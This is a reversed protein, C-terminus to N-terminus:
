QGTSERDTADDGLVMGALLRFCARNETPSAPDVGVAVVRGGQKSHFDYIPKPSRHPTYFIIAGEGSNLVGSNAFYGLMKYIEETPVGNRKRLKPDIYFISTVEGKEATAVKSIVTFDPRGGLMKGSQQWAAMEGVATKALDYQYHIAINLSDRKWQYTPVRGTNRMNPVTRPKGLAIAIEDAIGMLCWLEFLTADFAEDYFLWQEDGPQLIPRGSLTHRVWIALEEYPERNGVHGGALRQEVDDLMKFVWDDNGYHAVEKKNKSVGPLRLMLDLRELLQNAAHGERSNLPAKSSLLAQEVESSIWLLAYCALLNEPTRASREVRLTPYTTPARVEWGRSVWRAVDLKGALTGVSEHRVVSYRFNPRDLASELVRVLREGAALAVRLRLGAVAQELDAPVDATVSASRAVPSEAERLKQRLGRSFHTGLLRLTEYTAARRGANEFYGLSAGDAATM